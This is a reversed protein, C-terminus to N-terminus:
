RLEACLLYKTRTLHRCKYCTGSCLECEGESFCFIEGDSNVIGNLIDILYVEIHGPLLESWKIQLLIIAWKLSVLDSRVTIIVDLRPVWDWIMRGLHVFLIIPPFHKKSVAQVQITVVAPEASTRRIIFVRTKSSLIKVFNM